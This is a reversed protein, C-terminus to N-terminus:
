SRMYVLARIFNRGAFKTNVYLAILLGFVNQVSPQVLDM